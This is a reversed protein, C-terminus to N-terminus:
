FFVQRLSSYSQQLTTQVEETVVEILLVNSFSRIEVTFNFTQIKTLM